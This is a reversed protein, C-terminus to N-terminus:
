KDKTMDYLAKILEPFTSYYANSIYRDIWSRPYNEHNSVQPPDSDQQPIKYSALTVVIYSHGGSEVGPPGPVLRM